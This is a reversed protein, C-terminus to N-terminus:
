PERRKAGLSVRSSSASTIRKKGQKAKSQKEEELKELLEKRPVALLGDMVKNFNEFEGSKKQKM